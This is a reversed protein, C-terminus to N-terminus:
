PNVAAATARLTRLVHAADGHVLAGDAKVVQGAVLVTEINDPNAATVVAAIPDREATLMNLDTLRVLIIDAQKGQRLSGIRDALGLAAAGDLTAMKLVDSVTLPPNDAIQSALLAARMVSFMDGPLSSVADVGLGVTVGARRLRGAVPAGVRMQAETAPTVSAAAGSEAILKVEDDDLSNGHVYLTNARLLGHERLTTIPRAAVPGSSVHMTLPLGLDDALHWDSTVTEISSFSPGLPALSMTVLAQDDHLREHRLRRVDDVDYDGQGRPGYGFVTRLGATHLADVAADAHAPTHLAHSYDIMTTIGADLADLAGALTAAHIDQPRFRPGYQGLVVGMYAGLDLDAAGARLATQWLHRHTDVFGPLVIRDTADIVTAGEASLDPGVEVIRDGQVLVDTGPRAVPEPETDIVYGNRLLLRNATM